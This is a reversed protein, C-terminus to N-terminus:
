YMLRIPGGICRVSEDPEAGWMKSLYDPVCESHERFPVGRRVEIRSPVLEVREGGLGVVPECLLVSSEIGLM